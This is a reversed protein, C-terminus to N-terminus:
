VGSITSIWTGLAFASFAGALLLLYLIKIQWTQM